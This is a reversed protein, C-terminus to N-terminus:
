MEFGFLYFLFCLALFLFWFRCYVYYRSDADSGVGFGTCIIALGQPKILKWTKAPHFGLFNTQSSILSWPAQVCVQFAKPFVALTGAVWCSSCLSLAPKSSRVTADEGAYCHLVKRGGPHRDAWGTVDYVKRNIVLWQDTKQSHRQIEQWTYRNLSKRPLDCKANAEQRASLKAKGSAGPKGNPQHKAGLNLQNEDVLSGNGEPKEEFTM